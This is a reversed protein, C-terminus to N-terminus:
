TAEGEPRRAAMWLSDSTPLRGLIPRPLPKFGVQRLMESLTQPTFYNCHAPLHYGCWNMGRITRNWSAYNPTKMVTVGGPKLVRYAARLGALPNWEHEIYGFQTVVDFTKEPLDREATETVPGELIKGASIRRRSIEASGPSLEIGMVDFYKSAIVLFGADGCGFDVLKGERSWCLTQTLMRGNTDPRLPRLLRSLFLMLPQKQKRRLVEKGYEEMWDHERAQVDYGLESGIFVMNCRACKVIEWPDRRAVLKREIAGCLPCARTKSVIPQSAASM